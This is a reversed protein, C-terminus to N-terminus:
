QFPQGPILTIATRYKQFGCIVVPGEPVLRDIIMIRLRRALRHSDWRARNLIQHYSSFNSAAARGTM